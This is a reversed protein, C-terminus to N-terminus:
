EASHNGRDELGSGRHRHEHVHDPHRHAWSCGRDDHIYGAHSRADPHDACHGAANTASTPSSVSGGGNATWSVSVNQVPNDNADTVRVALPNPLDQGGIASQNNGSQLVIKSPVDASATAGFRVPTIGSVVATLSDKGAIPGLTWRSDPRTRDPRYQQESSKRDRKRRGGAM